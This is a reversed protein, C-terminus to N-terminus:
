VTKKMKQNGNPYPLKIYTRENEKDKENMDPSKVVKLSVMNKQHNRKIMKYTKVGIGVTLFSCVTIAIINRKKM